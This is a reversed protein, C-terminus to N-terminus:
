SMYMKLEVSNLLSQLVKHPDTCGGLVLFSNNSITIVSPSSQPQSLQGAIEWRDPTYRHIDKTTRGERFGGILVPQKSNTLLSSRKYPTDAIPTWQIPQSSSNTVSDELVCVPISWSKTSPAHVTEWASTAIVADGFVGLELYWLPQPLVGHGRRWQNKEIDLVEFTDLVTTKDKGGFVFLFKKLLLVGPRLRTMRMPPITQMWKQEDVVWTSVISTIDGTSSDKGGILVLNGAISVAECLYQPAPPLTSWKGTDINYVQVIQTLKVGGAIGGAVFLNKGILVSRAETTPVPMGEVKVSHLCTHGM